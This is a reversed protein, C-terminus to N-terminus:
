LIRRVVARRARSRYFSAWAIIVILIGFLFCLFLWGWQARRIRAADVIGARNVSPNAPLYTVLLPGGLRSADYQSRSVSARSQIAAEEAQFTYYLYYSTSKGSSIRKDTILAYTTRGQAQLEELTSIDRYGLWLILLFIIGFVVILVGNGARSRRLRIQWKATVRMVTKVQQPESRM